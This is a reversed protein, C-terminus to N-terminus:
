AYTQEGVPCTTCTAPKPERRRRDTTVPVAPPARKVKVKLLSDDHCSCNSVILPLAVLPL